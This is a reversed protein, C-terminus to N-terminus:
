HRPGPHGPLTELLRAVSAVRNFATNWKATSHVTGRVRQNMDITQGIYKVELTLPCVLAYIFFPKGERLQIESESTPKM